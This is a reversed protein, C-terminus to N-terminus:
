FIGIVLNRPTLSKTLLVNIELPKNFMQKLLWKTYLECKIISPPQIGFLLLLNNMSSIKQICNQMSYFFPVRKQSMFEQPLPKLNTIEEIHIHLYKGRNVNHTKRRLYKTSFFHNPIRRHHELHM